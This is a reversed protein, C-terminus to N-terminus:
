LRIMRVDFVDVLGARFFSMATAPPGQDSSHRPVPGAGRGRITLVITTGFTRNVEGRASGSRSTAGTRRHVRLTSLSAHHPDLVLDHREIGGIEGGLAPEPRPHE